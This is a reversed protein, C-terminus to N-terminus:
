NNSLVMRNKKKRIEMGAAAALSSAMSLLLFFVASPFLGSAADLEDSCSATFLQSTHWPGRL